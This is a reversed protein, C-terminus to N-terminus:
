ASRLWDSQRLEPGSDGFLLLSPLLAKLDRAVAFCGAQRLTGEAFGGTLVAAVKTGAEIGAEADYPTDGVLIAQSGPLALKRLAMGVLRPDPKGHEVDDGCATAAIYDGADLLAM